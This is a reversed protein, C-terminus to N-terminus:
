NLYRTYLLLDLQIDDHITESVNGAADKFKAYVIKKGEESSLVWIKDKAYKEWAANKFDVDNSLMMETAGEANLILAVKREKNATWENGKNILISTNQPAQQHTSL